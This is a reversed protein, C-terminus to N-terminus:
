VSKGQVVSTRDEKGIQHGKISWIRVINDEAATLFRKGDPSFAVATIGISSVRYNGFPHEIDKGIQNGQVDWLRATNYRSGTLITTGNLSFAVAKIWDHKMDKGVQNGQLDWLRATDDRSGTLVKTGDPSFAATYIGKRYSYSSEGPHKM